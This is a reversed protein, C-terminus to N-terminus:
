GSRASVRPSSKSEIMQCRSLSTPIPRTPTPKCNRKSTSLHNRASAKIGAARTTGLRSEPSSPWAPRPSPSGVADTLSSASWAQSSARPWPTRTPGRSCATASILRAYLNLDGVREMGPLTLAEHKGGSLLCPALVADHEMVSVPAQARQQGGPGVDVCGTRERTGRTASCTKSGVQQQFQALQNVRQSCACSHAYIDPLLRRM